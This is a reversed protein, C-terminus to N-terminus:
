LNTQLSCRLPTHPEIELVQEGKRCFHRAMLAAENYNSAMVIMQETIMWGGRGQRHGYYISYENKTM